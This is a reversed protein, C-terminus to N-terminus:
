IKLRNAIDNAIEADLKVLARDYTILGNIEEEVDSIQTYIAACLGEKILPIVETEYLRKFDENYAELSKCNRYGFSKKEDFLHGKVAYCYGGFESVIIPRKANKPLKIKKFYM